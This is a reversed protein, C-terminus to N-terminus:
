AEEPRSAPSRCARWLRRWVINRRRRARRRAARASTACPSVIVSFGPASSTSTVRELPEDPAPRGLRELRRRREILTRQQVPQLDGRRLKSSQSWDSRARSCSSATSAGGGPEDIAVDLRPARLRGRLRGRAEDREVRRLLVHM